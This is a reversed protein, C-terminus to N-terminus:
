CKVILNGFHCFFALEAVHELAETANGTHEQGLIPLRAHGLSKSKDAKRVSAISDLRTVLHVSITELMQNQADFKCLLSRLFHITAKSTLEWSFPLSPYIVRHGYVIERWYHIM